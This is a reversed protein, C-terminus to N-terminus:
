VKCSMYVELMQTMDSIFQKKSLLVDQATTNQLLLVKFLAIVLKKLCFWVYRVQYNEEFVSNSNIKETFNVYFSKMFGFCNSSLPLRETLPMYKAPDPVFSRNAMRFYKFFVHLFSNHFITVKGLM